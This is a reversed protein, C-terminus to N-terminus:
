CEPGWCVTPWNMPRWGTLAARFPIKELYPFTVNNQATVWAATEASTDDELWRYPDPVKTGHYTDVHDSKRTMPYTPSNTPTQASLVAGVLAASVTAAVRAFVNALAVDLFVVDAGFGGHIADWTFERSDVALM